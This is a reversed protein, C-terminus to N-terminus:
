DHIEKAGRVNKRQHSVMTKGQAILAAGFAAPMQPDISIISIDKKSYCALAHIYAPIKALGGAMVITDSADVGELLTITKLTIVNIVGAIIDEGCTGANVQSIVDSEAFVACSNVINYPNTSRSAFYSVEDISINLATAIMELFRGSGAACKENIHSEEPFGDENVTVVKIFLGGSDIVMNTDRSLFRAARALCFSEQITYAAQKVLHAGYGTAIIKKVHRKRVRTSSFKGASTLAEQFCAKLIGRFDAALEMCSSGVMINGDTIAVKIFRTGVDIGATLM